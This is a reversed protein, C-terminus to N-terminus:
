IVNIKRKIHFLEDYNDLVGGMVFNNLNQISNLDVTLYRMNHKDFLRCTGTIYNVDEIVYKPTEESDIKEVNNVNLYETEWFESLSYPGLTLRVTNGHENRVLNNTYIIKVKSPTAWNKDKYEIFNFYETSFKLLDSLYEIEDTTHEINWKHVLYPKIINWKASIYENRYTDGELNINSQKNWFKVTSNDKKNWSENIACGDLHQELFSPNCKDFFPCNDCQKLLNNIQTISFSSNYLTEQNYSCYRKLESFIHRGVRTRPTGNLGLQVDAILLKIANQYLIDHIKDRKNVLYDNFKVTRLSDYVQNYNYIGVNNNIGM